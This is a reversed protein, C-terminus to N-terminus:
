PLVQGTKSWIAPLGPLDDVGQQIPIQRIHDLLEQAAMEGDLAKFVSPLAADCWQDIGAVSLDDPPAVFCVALPFDRGLRDHSPMVLACVVAENWTFVGRYGTQPWSEQPGQAFKATLWRDLVPRLGTPLGRSLFDGASPLKGFLGSQHASLIGKSM